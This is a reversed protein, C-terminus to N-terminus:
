GARVMSLVIGDGLRYHIPQSFLLTPDLRGTRDIVQWAPIITLQDGWLVTSALIATAACAAAGAKKGSIHQRLTRLTRVRV